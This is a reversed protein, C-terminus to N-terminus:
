RSFHGDMTVSVRGCLAFLIRIRGIALGTTRIRHSTPLWLGLGPPFVLRKATSSRAVSNRELCLARQGGPLIRGLIACRAGSCSNVLYAGRALREPTRPIADMLLVSASATKDQRNGYLVTASFITFAVLSTAAVGRLLTQSM